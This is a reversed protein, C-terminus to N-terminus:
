KCDFVCKGLYFIPKRSRDFRGYVWYQAKEQFFEDCSVQLAVPCLRMKKDDVLAIPTLYQGDEDKWTLVDGARFLHGTTLSEGAKLEVKGNKTFRYKYLYDQEVLLFRYPWNRDIRELEFQTTLSKREIWGGKDNFDRIFIWDEKSWDIKKQKDKEEVFLFYSGKHATDLIKSHVSPSTYVNTEQHAYALYRLEQPGAYCAQSLLLLGAFLFQPLFRTCNAFISRKM